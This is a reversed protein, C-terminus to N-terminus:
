EEIRSITAVYTMHKVWADNLEAKNEELSVSIKRCITQQETLKTYNRRIEITCLQPKGDSGLRVDWFGEQVSMAAAMALAQWTGDSRLIDYGPVVGGPELKKGALFDHLEDVSLDDVQKLPQGKSPEVSRPSAPTSASSQNATEQREAAISTNPIYAGPFCILWLSLFKYPFKQAM